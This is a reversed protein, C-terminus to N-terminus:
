VGAALLAHQKFVERDLETPTEQHLESVWAQVRKMKDELLEESLDGSEVAQTFNPVLDDLLEATWPSRAIIFLDNGAKFATSIVGPQRFRSQVAKMELDDSVVLGGFGLKERLLTTLFYYSLTVPQEPDIKPLFLHATMVLPVQAALLSQFPILERQHLESETLELVPLDHHSDVTTDGHGPFHKACGAIGESRLGHLYGLSFRKADHANTGFARPGIVPNASNSHIDAVPAFSLNVGLSRLEKATARAVSEAQDRLNMSFPFHTIPAPTRIVSGGEHDLSVIIQKRETIERAEALLEKLRKIWGEYPENHSFNRSFLIIGAPKYARLIARDQEKLTVGSLGLILFQGLLEKYKSM